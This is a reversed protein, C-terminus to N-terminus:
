MLKKRTRKRRNEACKDYSGEKFQSGHVNNGNKKSISPVYDLIRFLGV